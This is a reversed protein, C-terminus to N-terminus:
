GAHLRYGEGRVSEIVETGLKRRLSSVHVDVVNPTRHVFDGWAEAILQERTLVEDRHHLLTQLLFSERPTLKGWRGRFTARRTGLDLLVDHARLVRSHMAQSERLRTKVRAVLELFPFPTAIFDDAGAGLCLAIGPSEAGGIGLVARRDGRARLDQVLRLTDCRPMGMDLIILDWGEESSLDQARECNRAMITSFGEGRVGQEITSALLSDYVAILITAM